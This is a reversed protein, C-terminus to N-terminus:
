NESGYLEKFLELKEKADEYELVQIVFGAHLLVYDDQKVEPCLLTSVELSVGGIEVKAKESNVIDTVKVPIALCM